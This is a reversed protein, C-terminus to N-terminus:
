IAQSLFFFFNLFCFDAAVNNFLCFGLALMKRLPSVSSTNGSINPVLYHHRSDGSSNLITSSTNSFAILCSFTILPILIPFYYAFSDRNVSLTCKSLGLSDIIFEFM